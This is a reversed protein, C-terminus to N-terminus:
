TQSSKEWEVIKDLEELYEQQKKEFDGSVKRLKPDIIYYMAVVQLVTFVTLVYGTWQNLLLLAIGALCNLYALASLICALLDERSWQKPFGAATARAQRLHFVAAILSLANISLLWIIWQNL